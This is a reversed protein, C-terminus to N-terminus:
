GRLQLWVLWSEVRGLICGFAEKWRPGRGIERGGPWWAKAAERQLQKEARTSEVRQRLHDEALYSRRRVLQRPALFGM